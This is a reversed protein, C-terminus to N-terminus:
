AADRSIAAPRPSPRVRAVGQHRHPQYLLYGRGHCRVCDRPTLRYVPQGDRDHGALVDVLERGDGSCRRCRIAPTTTSVPTTTRIPAVETGHRNM